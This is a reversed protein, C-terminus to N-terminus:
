RLWRRRGAPGYILVARGPIRDPPLLLVPTTQPSPVEPQANTWLAVVGAPVTTSCAMPFRTWSLPREEPPLVRSNVRLERGDSEIRDGPLGLVREIFRGGFEPAFEPDAVLVVDGRRLESVPRELRRVLIRDGRMLAPAAQDTNITWLELWRSLVLGTGAVTFFVLALSLFGLRLARLGEAESDGGAGPFAHLAAEFVSALVLLLPLGLFLNSVPHRITVAALGVLGVAGLFFRLAAAPRRDLAQGLGPVMAAASIGWAGAAGRWDLAAGGHAALLGRLGDRVQPVDVTPLRDRLTRDRARPPYLAEVAAGEVARRGPGCRPCESVGPLTHYGCEPCKM